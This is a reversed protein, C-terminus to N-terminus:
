CNRQKEMSEARGTRTTCEESARPKWGHFVSPRRYALAGEVPPPAPQPAPAPTAGMAGAAGAADSGLVLADREEATPLLLSWNPPPPVAATATPAGLRREILQQQQSVRQMLAAVRRQTEERSFPEGSRLKKGNPM